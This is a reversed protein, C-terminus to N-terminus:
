ANENKIEEVIIINIIKTTSIIFIGTIFIVLIVGSDVMQKLPQYARIQLHGGTTNKMQELAVDSGVLPELTQVIQYNIGTAAFIVILSYIIIKVIKKRIKNNM